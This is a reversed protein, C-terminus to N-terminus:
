TTLDAGAPRGSRRVTLSEIPIFVSTPPVPEAGGDIHVTALDPLRESLTREVNLRFRYADGPSAGDIHLRVADSDFSVLEISAVPGSLRQLEALTARLRDELSVPHLGHILLLTAVLDDRGIAALFEPPPRLREDVAGVLQALGAEHLDTVATLMAVARERIAVPGTEFEDLLNEVTDAARRVVDAEIPPPAPTDARHLALLRGLPEHETWVTLHDSAGHEDLLERVRRLAGGYLTLASAVLDEARQRATIEGPEFADLLEGLRTDVGDFTPLPM